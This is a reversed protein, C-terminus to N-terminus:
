SNHAIALTNSKNFGNISFVDFSINDIAKTLNFRNGYYKCANSVRLIKDM